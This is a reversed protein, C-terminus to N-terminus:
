AILESTVSPVSSAAAEAVEVDSEADKREAPVDFYALVFRRRTEPRHWDLICRALDGPDARRDLLTVLRRFGRAIEEDTRVALLSKLRLESLAPASGNQSPGARRAVPVRDTERVFALVHALAGVSAWEEGSRGLSKFLAIAAPDAAADEASGVRRLRALAARDGKIGKAPDPQLDRWWRYAALADNPKEKRDATM